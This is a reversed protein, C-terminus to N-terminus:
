FEQNRFDLLSPWWEMNSNGAATNGGHMVPCKGTSTSPKNEM